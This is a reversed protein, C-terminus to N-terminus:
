VIAANILKEIYDRKKRSKIAGERKRAESLTKYEEKYVLVWPRKNKTYKSSGTNHEKLRREVSNTCGIYYSNDIISKLIYVYYM